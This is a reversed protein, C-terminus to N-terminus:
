FYCFALFPLSSFPPLCYKPLSSRQSSSRISICRMSSQLLSDRLKTYSLMQLLVVFFSTNPFIAYITTLFFPYGPTRVPDKVQPDQLYISFSHNQLLNRALADYGISDHSTYPVNPNVAVFILFPIRVMLSVLILFFLYRKM